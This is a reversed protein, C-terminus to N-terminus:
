KVDEPKSIIIGTQKIIEEKEKAYDALQKVVEDLKPEAMNLYGTAERHLYAATLDENSLQGIHPHSSAINTIVAKKVGIEAELEKKAKNLYIVDADIQGLTFEIEGGTKVIKIDAADPAQEKISYTIM